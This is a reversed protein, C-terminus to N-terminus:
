IYSHTCLYYLALYIHSCASAASRFSRRDLGILLRGRGYSYSTYSIHTAYIYTIEADTHQPQTFWPTCAKSRTPQALPWPCPAWRLPSRPRMLSPSGVTTQTSHRGASLGHPTADAVRRLEPQHQPGTHAHVRTHQHRRINVYICMRVYM